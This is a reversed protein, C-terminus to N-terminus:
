QLMIRHSASFADNIYVDFNKSIKKAFNLDNKEEEPYFRINEILCVDGQSMKNITNKIEENELNELFFIKDLEM